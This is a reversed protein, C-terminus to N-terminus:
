RRSDEASMVPLNHDILLHHAPRPTHVTGRGLHPPRRMQLAFDLRRVGCFLKLHPWPVDLVGTECPVGRGGRKLGLLVNNNGSVLLEIALDPQTM